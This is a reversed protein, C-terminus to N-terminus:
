AQVRHALKAPKGQYYWQGAPLRESAKAFHDTWRALADSRAQAPALVPLMAPPVLGTRVRVELAHRRQSRITEDGAGLRALLGCVSWPQGHLLRVPPEKHNPLSHQGSGLILRKGEDLVEKPVRDGLLPLARVTAASGLNAAACVMYGVDADANPDKALDMLLAADSDDGAIALADVLQPDYAERRQVRARIEALAHVSGLATAAFLLANSRRPVMAREALMALTQAHQPEGVLALALAAEVAVQEDAHDVLPLIQGPTLQGREALLTLLLARVTESTTKEFVTQVCDLFHQGALARLITLSIPGLPATGHASRELVTMSREAGGPADLHVLAASAVLRQEPEKAERSAKVWAPRRRPGLWAIALLHAHLTDAAKDLDVLRHTAGHLVAHLNDFSGHLGALQAEAAGFDLASVAQPRPKRECRARRPPLAPSTPPPPLSSPVFTQFVSPAHVAVPEASAQDAPAPPLGTELPALFSLAKATGELQEQDAPRGSEYILVLCGRLQALAQRIEEPTEQGEPAALAKDLAQMARRLASGVEPSTGRRRLLPSLTKNASRIQEKAM